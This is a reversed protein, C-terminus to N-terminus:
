DGIAPAPRRRLPAGVAHLYALIERYSGAASTEHYPVGIERCYARIIRQAARLRNRPLTPFLHHEIQYNLGGYWWDAIPGSRVNRSTVVQARLFGLDHEGPELYEMGKHNSAFASALYLGTAAQHIAIILLATGLGFAWIPLALYVVWHLAFLAIEARHHQPRQTRLWRISSSYWMPAVLCMLPFFWFAQYPMLLRALGRSAIAQDTTYAVIPIDIEPDEDIHNPNAHHDNHKDTWWSHSVGLLLNGHVLALLRNKWGAAFIQRHGSDHLIYAMQGFVVGLFIANLILAWTAHAVTFLALSVALMLLNAAITILYYRPQKQMLGSAQIRRKLEVYESQMCREKMAWPGVYGAVGPSLM